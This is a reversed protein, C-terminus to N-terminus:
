VRLTLEGHRGLYFLDGCDLQACMVCFVSYFHYMNYLEYRQGVRFQLDTLLFTNFM